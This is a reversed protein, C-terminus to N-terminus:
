NVILSVGGGKRKRKIKGGEKSRFAKTRVEELLAQLRQEHHLVLVDVHRLDDSLLMVFVAFLVRLLMKTSYFM